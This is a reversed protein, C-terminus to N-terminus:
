TYHVQLQPTTNLYLHSLLPSEPDKTFTSPQGTRASLHYHHSHQELAPSTIYSCVSSRLLDYHSQTPVLPNIPHSTIECDALTQVQQQPGTAHKLIRISVQLAEHHSTSSTSHRM